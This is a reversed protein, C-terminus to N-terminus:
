TYQSAWRLALLGRKLATGSSRLTLNRQYCAFVSVQGCLLYFLLAQQM